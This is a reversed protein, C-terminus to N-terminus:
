DKDSQTNVFDLLCKGPRFLPVNRTELKVSKRTRPDYGLRAERQKTFFCGFGRLEVRKGESLAASIGSFITQFIHEVEDKSCGELRTLLREIFESKTM